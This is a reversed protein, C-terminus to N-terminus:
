QSLFPLHLFALFVKTTQNLSSRQLRFFISIHAIEVLNQYIDLNNFVSFCSTHLNSTVHFFAKFQFVHKNEINESIKLGYFCTKTGNNLIYYVLKGWKYNPVLKHQRKPIKLFYRDKESGSFRSEGSGQFKGFNGKCPKQLAAFTIRLLSTLLLLCPLRKSYIAVLQLSITLLLQLFM